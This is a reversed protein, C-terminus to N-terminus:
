AEEHWIKLLLVSGNLGHESRDATEERVDRRSDEFIGQLTEGAYTGKFGVRSFAERVLQKLDEATSFDDALCILECQDGRLNGRGQQHNTTGIEATTRFTIYPPRTNQPVEGEPYVAGRDDLARRLKGDHTLIWRLARYYAM